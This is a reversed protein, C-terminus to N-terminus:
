VTCKEPFRKVNVQDLEQLVYLCTEPLNSRIM